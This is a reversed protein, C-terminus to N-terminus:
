AEVGYFRRIFAPNLVGGCRETADSDIRYPGAFVSGGFKSTTFRLTYTGKDPDSYSLTVRYGYQGGAGYRKRGIAVTPIDVLDAMVAKQCDSPLDAFAIRKGLHRGLQANSHQGFGNHAFPHESMALCAYSGPTERVGLYVVTYRDFSRGGNDYCAVRVSGIKESSM